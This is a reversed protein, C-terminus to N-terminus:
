QSMKCAAYRRASRGYKAVTGGKIYIGYAQNNAAATSTWVNESAILAASRGCTSNNDWDPCIDYVSALQWGHSQCWNQASWWNLSQKSICTGYGCGGGGANVCDEHCDAMATGTMMMFAVLTAMLIKKM